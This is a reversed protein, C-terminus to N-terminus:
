MYKDPKTIHIQAFHVIIYLQAHQTYDIHTHLTVTVQTFM